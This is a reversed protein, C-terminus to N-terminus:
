RTAPPAMPAPQPPTTTPRPQAKARAWVEVSARGGGPLNQYAFDVTKIKRLAGPIDIPRTRTGEKFAIAGKMEFREGNGLTIVVDTLEVDSGAVVFMVESYPGKNGVTLRDHDRWGDATTKGLYTWGKNEWTIKPIAAPAPKGVDRAYVEVHAKGGGPLNAYTMLIKAIKRDKGPLDIVRSRQGERFMHAVKPSWTQGDGFQLTLDKLDLDSDTVVLTLQDFKGTGRVRITDQDVGGNVTKEGLKMWGKSEFHYPAPPAPPVPESHPPVVGTNSPPPRRNAFAPTAPAVAAVM